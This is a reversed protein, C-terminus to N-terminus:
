DINIVLTICLKSKSISTDIQKLFGLYSNLFLINLGDFVSVRMEFKENIKDHLKRVIGYEDDSLKLYIEHKQSSRIREMGVNVYDYHIQSSYNDVNFILTENNYHFEVPHKYFFTDISKGNIKLWEVVKTVCENDPISFIKTLELAIYNGNTIEGGNNYVKDNKIIYNKDLYKILLDM